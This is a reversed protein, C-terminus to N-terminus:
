QFKLKAQTTALHKELQALEALLTPVMNAPVHAPEGIHRRITQVSQALRDVIRRANAFDKLRLSQNVAM